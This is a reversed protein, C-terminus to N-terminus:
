SLATIKSLASLLMMISTHDVENLIQAQICMVLVKTDYGHYLKGYQVMILTEYISDIRVHMHCLFLVNLARSQLIRGAATKEIQEVSNPLM